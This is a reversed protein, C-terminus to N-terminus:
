ATSRAHLAPLRAWCYGSRTAELMGQRGCEPCSRVEPAKGLNLMNVLDAWTTDLATGPDPSARQVDTDWAHAVEAGVAAVLTRLRELDAGSFSLVLNNM